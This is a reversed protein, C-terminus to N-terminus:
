YTANGWSVNSGRTDIHIFSPYRGVAIKHGENRMALLEKHMAKLTIKPASLDLARFQVHQSNRAGGVSRNYAPSRYGSTVKISKGVRSRLEDALVITPWFNDWLENPPINNNKYKSNSAGLYLCEEATFYKIGRNDLEKQFAVIPNKKISEEKMSNVISPSPLNPLRPVQGTQYNNLGFIRLISQWM